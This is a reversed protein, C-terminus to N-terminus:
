KWRLLFATMDKEERFYFFTNGFMSLICWKGLGEWEEPEDWVWNTYQPNKGIHEDCWVIMSQQLHYHDKGFQVTNNM